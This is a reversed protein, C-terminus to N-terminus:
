VDKLHDFGLNNDNTLNNNVEDTIKQSSNFRGIISFNVNEFPWLEKLTEIKEARVAFILEHDEGDSYANPWTAGERLPIQSRYFELGLNNQRCLKYSDKLLGDSVDTMAVAWKNVALFRGEAMRPEFLLHHQSLFSNGFEGTACLLDGSQIGKQTLVEEEKQEGIITLSAVSEQNTTAIDGGLVAVSYEKALEVIGLHFRRLWDLSKNKSSASSILAYRPVAGMSAIDSLNRALLKRGVLEPSTEPTYHRGEIVQDVAIVQLQDSNDVRYVACDDGPGVVINADDGLLPFLQNLFKEESM